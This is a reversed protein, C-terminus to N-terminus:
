EDNLRGCVSKKLKWIGIWVADRKEASAVEEVGSVNRKRREV